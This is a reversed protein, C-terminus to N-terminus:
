ISSKEDINLFQSDKLENFKDLKLVDLAKYKVLMNSFQWEKIENSKDFKLENEIYSIFFINEPHVLNSNIFISFYLIGNDNEYSACLYPLGSIGKKSTERSGAVPPLDRVTGNKWYLGHHTQQGPQIESM